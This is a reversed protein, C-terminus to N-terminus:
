PDPIGRSVPLSSSRHVTLVAVAAGAIAGLLHGDWSIHPGATPLSGSLLTGGYLVGVLVAVALPVFRRERFGAVLLFAILGYILGSAGVHVRGGRGLLWLLLGGLLVIAIVVAASNARSGALLCLLVLLPLTNSLLHAWGGHLFPMALIGSLGSATRPVIGYQILDAPLLLDLLFAAWISAVFGVVSQLEDRIAHKM